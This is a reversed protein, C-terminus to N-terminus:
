QKEEIVKRNLTRADDLSTYGEMCLVAQAWGIFRHAKSGTVKGDVVQQLIDLIHESSCGPVTNVFDHIHVSKAQDLVAQAIEQAKDDMLIQM